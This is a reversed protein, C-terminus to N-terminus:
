VLNLFMFLGVVGAIIVILIVSIWFPIGISLAIYGIGIAVVIIVIAIVVLIALARKQDSTMRRGSENPEVDRRRGRAPYRCQRPAAPPAAQRGRLLLEM